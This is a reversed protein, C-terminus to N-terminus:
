TVLGAAFYCRGTWYFLSGICCFGCYGLFQKFLCAAGAVFDLLIPAASQLLLDGAWLIM